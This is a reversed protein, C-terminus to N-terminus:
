CVSMSFCFSVPSIFSTLYFTIYQTLHMDFSLFFNPIPHIEPNFGQPNNIQKCLIEQLQHPDHCTHSPIRPSNNSYEITIKPFSMPRSYTKQLCSLAICLYNSIMRIQNICKFVVEDGINTYYTFDNGAVNKLLVIKWFTFAGGRVRNLFM